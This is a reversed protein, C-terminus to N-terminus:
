VFDMLALKLLPDCPEFRQGRAVLRHDVIDWLPNAKEVGVLPEDQAIAAVALDVVDRGLAHKRARRKGFDHGQANGGPGGRGGDVGKKRLGTRGARM